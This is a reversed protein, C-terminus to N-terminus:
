LSSTVPAKTLWRECWQPAECQIFCRSHWYCCVWYLGPLWPLLFIVVNISLRQYVNVYSHFMMMKWSFIWSSFPSKGYNHLLNGSPIGYIGMDDWSKGYNDYLIGYFGMFDWLIGYFGMFKGQVGGNLTSKELWTESSSLRQFRWASKSMDMVMLSGGQIRNRIMMSHISSIRCWLIPYSKTTANYSPLVIFINSIM